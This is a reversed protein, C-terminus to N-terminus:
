NGCDSCRLSDEVLNQCFEVQGNVQVPANCVNPQSWHCQVEDEGVQTQLSWKVFLTSRVIEEFSLPTTRYKGYFVSENQFAKHKKLYIAGAIFDEEMKNPSASGHSKTYHALQSFQELSVDRYFIDTIRHPDWPRSFLYERIQHKVEDSDIFDVYQQTSPSTSSSLYSIGVLSSLAPTDQISNGVSSTLTDKDFENIIIDKTDESTDYEISELNPNLFLVFHDKIESNTFTVPQNGGNRIYLIPKHRQNNENLTIQKKVEFFPKVPRVSIHSARNLMESTLNLGDSDLIWLDIVRESLEEVPRNYNARFFPDLAHFRVGVDTDEDEFGITDLVSLAHRFCARLFKLKSFSREFQGGPSMESVEELTERTAKFLEKSLNLPNRMLNAINERQTVKRIIERFYDNKRLLNLDEFIINLTTRPRPTNM